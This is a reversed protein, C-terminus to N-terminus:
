SYNSSNFDQTFKAVVILITYRSWHDDIAALIIIQFSSPFSWLTHILQYCRFWQDTNINWLPLYDSIIGEQYSAIPLIHGDGTVYEQGLIAWGDLYLYGNTPCVSLFSCTLHCQASANTLHMLDLKDSNQLAFLIIEFLFFPPSIYSLILLSKLSVWGFVFIHVKDQDQNLFDM